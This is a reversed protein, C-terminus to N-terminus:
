LKYKTSFEEVSMIAVGKEEAKTVKLSTYAKNPVILITTDKTVGDTVTGSNGEIKAELEKSRIGTFGIFQGKLKVGTVLTKGVDLSATLGSKKYWKLYLPVGTIFLNTTITNFGPVTLVLSRTVEEGKTVYIELIDPYKKFVYSLRKSSMGAGFHGSAKMLAAVPIPKNIKDQIANYYKNANRTQVGPIQMFDDPKAKIIKLVSDLGADAFKSVTGLKIFDIGLITFFDTIRKDTAVDSHTDFVINVGTADYTYPIDPMDPKKAAKVVEIVHPIVDGSRKIRIIAGPGIPMVKRNASTKNDKQRYGTEIFKANFGSAQKVTVGALRVPKINVVPKGVNYKSPTWTVSLVEADVVDGEMEMKFSIAYEPVATGASPRTTKKDQEIVLGDMAIESKKKRLMLYKELFAQDLTPVVKYAVINFGYKKLLELSASPQIRPEIIEYAYHNVHAAAAHQVHLKNVVGAVLNRANEYKKGSETSLEKSFKSNFTAETMALEFRVAFVKRYPITLPVGFHPILHSVNQGTTGKGRTYAAQPIGHEYLLEISVGDEKDSIVYPGKHTAIWKAFEPTNPKIKSLSFLPYPLQVKTRGKPVAAGVQKLLPHGPKRKRLEDELIDYQKDTLQSTGYNTYEDKATKIIAVLDPLYLTEAFEYPDKRLDKLDDKDLM